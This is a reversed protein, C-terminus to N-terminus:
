LYAAISNPNRQTVLSRFQPTEVVAQTARAGGQWLGEYSAFFFTRNRIIPGGGAFDLLHKRAGPSCRSRFRLARGAHRRHLLLSGTRPVPQNRRKTQMQIQAGPNRGDVASFNNAVVRVEEVSEANPVVNTVGNRADGNVSTDDLTYNNGEFRQGSAYM